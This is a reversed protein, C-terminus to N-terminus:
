DYPDLEVPRAVVRFQSNISPLSIALYRMSDSGHSAWDHVPRVRYTMNKEDFEKRYNKLALIGNNCKEEDFWCRNLIGRVAEIGDDVSLNNPIVSFNIGLSRAVELRSKGTGLERAEIDHPAFHNNYVYEKEKVLKAYHALGEGTNEYYDIIHIEQGVIQYFWIATSDGVGLDWATYVGTAMDYPVRTIRKEEMALLLQKAYYAGEIPTDFSCYYEQQYLADNGTKAMMARREQQLVEDSISKTDEVTLLQVFWNSEGQAFQYLKYAHNQGRPTFCFVAWGGNEALIPSVFDWARPDQISYESFVCGVPNTSMISDINDTGVMQIISGNKLKIRMLQDNTSTRIDLPIHNIFGFGDRDMGDWIAKRAQAYTPYFYFYSGVRELAKKCVLNILTKDKGSRRNWVVIARKVGGDMAELLPLQYERPEYNYPIKIKKSPTM